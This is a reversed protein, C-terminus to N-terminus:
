TQGWMEGGRAPQAYEWRCGRDRSEAVSAPYRRIGRGPASGPHRCRTRYRRHAGLLGPKGSSVSSQHPVPRFWMLGTYQADTIALGYQTGSEWAQPLSALWPRAISENYDPTCWTMWPMIEDVSEHVAELVAPLDNLSLPRLTVVGDTLSLDYPVM